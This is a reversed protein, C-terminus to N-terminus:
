SKKISNLRNQSVIDIDLCKGDPLGMVPARVKFCIINYIITVILSLVNKKASCPEGLGLIDRSLLGCRHYIEIIKGSYANIFKKKRVHYHRVQKRM